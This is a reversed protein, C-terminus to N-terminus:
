LRKTFCERTECSSARMMASTGFSVLQPRPPPVMRHLSPGSGTMRCRPALRIGGLGWAQGGSSRQHPSTGAQRERTGIEEPHDVERKCVRTKCTWSGPFLFKGGPRRPLLHDQSCHNPEWGGAWAESWRELEQSLPVQLAAPAPHPLRAMGPLSDRCPHAPSLASWPARRM